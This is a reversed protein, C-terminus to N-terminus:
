SQEKRLIAEGLKELKAKIDSDKIEELTNNLFNQETDSLIRNMLTIRKKQRMEKSMEANNSPVTVFRISTIWQDGFLLNIRELIAGTQMRLITAEAERAAIDLRAGRDKDASGKRPKQYHIKVPQAKGALKEGVIEEWQSVIRGLAVFKREFTKGAIRSTSESLPRM